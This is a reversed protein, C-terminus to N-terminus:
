WKKFKIFGGLGLILKNENSNRRWNIDVIHYNIYSLPNKVIWGYDSLVMTVGMRCNYYKIWRQNEDVLSISKRWRWRIEGMKFTPMGWWIEKILQMNHLKWGLILCTDTIVGKDFIKKWLTERQKFQHEIATENM